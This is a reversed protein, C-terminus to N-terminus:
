RFLGTFWDNYINMLLYICWTYERKLSQHVINMVSLYLMHWLTRSLFINDHAHIYIYVYYTWWLYVCWTYVRKKEQSLINMLPPPSPDLGLFHVPLPQPIPDLVMQHARRGTPLYWERRPTPSMLNRSFPVRGWGGVEWTWSPNVCRQTALKMMSLYIMPISEEFKSQRHEDNTV